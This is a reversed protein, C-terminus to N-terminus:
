LSFVPKQLIFDLVRLFIEHRKCLVFVGPCYSLKEPTRFNDAPTDSASLVIIIEM